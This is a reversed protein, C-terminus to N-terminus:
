TGAALVLFGAIRARDARNMSGTQAKSHIARDSNTRSQVREGSAFIRREASQGLLM